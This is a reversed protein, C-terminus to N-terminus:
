RKPGSFEDLILVSERRWKGDESPNPRWLAGPHRFPM